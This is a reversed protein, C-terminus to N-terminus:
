FANFSFGSFLNGHCVTLAVELMSYDSAVTDFFTLQGFDFDPWTQSARIVVYAADCQRLGQTFEAHFLWAFFVGGPMVPCPKDAAQKNTSLLGM